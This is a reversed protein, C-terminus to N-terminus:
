LSDAGHNTAACYGDFALKSFYLFARDMMFVEDIVLLHVIREMSGDERQRLFRKRVRAATDKNEIFQEKLNKPTLGLLTFTTSAALQMVCAATGSPASAAIIECGHLPAPLGL